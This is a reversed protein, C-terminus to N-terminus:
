PHLCYPRWKLCLPQAPYRDIKKQTQTRIVTLAQHPPVELRGLSATQDLLIPRNQGMHDIPTPTVACRSHLCKNFLGSISLGSCRRYAIGYPCRPTELTDPMQDEPLLTGSAEENATRLHPLARRGLFIPFVSRGGTNRNPPSTTQHM